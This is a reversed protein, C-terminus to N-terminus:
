LFPNYFSDMLIRDGRLLKQNSNDIHSLSSTFSSVLDPESDPQSSVLGPQIDRRLKNQACLFYKEDSFDLMVSVACATVFIM